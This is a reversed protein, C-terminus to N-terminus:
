KQKGWHGRERYYNFGIAIYQRSGIMTYKETIIEHIVTAHKWSDIPMSVSRFSVPNYTMTTGGVIYIIDNFEYRIGIDGGCGFSIRDDTIKKGDTENYLSLWNIDIIGFGFVMNLKETIYLRFGIGLMIDQQILPMFANEITNYVPFLLGYNFFVGIHKEKPFLYDSLNIGISSIQFKGLDSGSDFYSGFNVGTSLWTEEFSFAIANLVFILILGFFIKKM